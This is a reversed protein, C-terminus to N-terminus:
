DAMLFARVEPDVEAARERCKVALEPHGSQCWHASLQEVLRVYTRHLRDRSVAHNGAVL